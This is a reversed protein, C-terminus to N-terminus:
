ALLSDLFSAMLAFSAEEALGPGDGASHLCDWTAPWASGAEERLPAREGSALVGGALDGAARGAEACLAAYARAEGEPLLSVSLAPLGGLLFGLDDSWPLPLRLPEALGARGAAGSCLRELSSLGQALPSAALGHRELLAAPARSFLLRGGRGTVDVVLFGSLAAIAERGLAAKLALSLAYSGQDLPGGKGPAEEGDTFLLFLGESRVEDLSRVSSTRESASSREALGVKSEGRAAGVRAVVRAGFDALELCAASNDLFGPSGAVRDYHASVIFRPSGRGLRVLVHRRSGIALLRYALGRKALLACLGGLRDSGPSLFRLFEEPFVM